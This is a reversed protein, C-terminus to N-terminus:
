LVLALLALPRSPCPVQITQPLRVGTWTQLEPTIPTPLRVPPIPTSLASCVGKSKRPGVSKPLILFRSLNSNPYLVPPLNPCLPLVSAELTM